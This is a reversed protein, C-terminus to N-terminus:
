AFINYSIRYQAVPFNCFKQISLTFVSLASNFFYEFQTPYIRRKKQFDTGFGPFLASTKFINEAHLKSKSFANHQDHFIGLFIQKRVPCLM